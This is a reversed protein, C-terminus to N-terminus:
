DRRVSNRVSFWYLFMANVAVHGWHNTGMEKDNLEGMRAAQVHRLLADLYREQDVFQWSPQGEIKPHNVEGKTLIEAMEQLFEPLVLGYKLKGEDWKLESSGPKTM